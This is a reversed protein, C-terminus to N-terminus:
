AKCRAAVEVLWAALTPPTHEREAKSCEPRWGRDGKKLRSGDARRGSGSIVHSSEGLIFPVGPLQAPEVGVIYFWTDKQAKHGWWSQSVPLTWGGYEDQRGPEPLGAAPWLTSFAPHELVGGFTRVQRVAFIALDKEDQRPKAM